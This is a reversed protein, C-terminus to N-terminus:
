VIWDLEVTLPVHDSRLGRKSSVWDDYSAIEVSRVVTMLQPPLLVLDIHFPRELKFQHFHTHAIEQGHSIGHFSHHASLYGLEALRKTVGYRSDTPGGPDLNFDGAIICPQSTLMWEFADLTAHIEDAYAKAAPSKQPPCSWVGLVGIGNNLHAAISHRGPSHGETPYVRSMESGWSALALGRDELTGEWLWEVAIGDLQTPPPQRRVECLVAM